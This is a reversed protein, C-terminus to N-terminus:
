MGPNHPLHCEDCAEGESHEDPEVQPFWEPRAVSIRHCSLCLSTAEPLEPLVESPEVAHSALAGHCAECGVASHAGDVREAAVDDHCEECVARGAFAPTVARNDDLSGGRFHGFEGFDAPILIGRLVVFVVFGIAFLGAMRVLHEKDRFLERM